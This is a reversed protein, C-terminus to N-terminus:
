QTHAEAVCAPTLLARIAVKVDGPRARKGSTYEWQCRIEKSQRAMKAEVGETIASQHAAPVATLAPYGGLRVDEGVRLDTLKGSQVNIQGRNQFGHV